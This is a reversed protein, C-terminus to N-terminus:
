QKRKLLLQKIKGLVKLYLKVFVEAFAVTLNITLNILTLCSLGWGYTKKVNVNTETFLILFYSALFVTTENFVEM